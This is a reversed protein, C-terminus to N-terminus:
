GAGEITVEVYVIDPVFGRVCTLGTWRVFPQDFAKSLRICTTSFIELVSFPVTFLKGLRRSTFSLCFLSWGDDFIKGTVDISRGSGLTKDLSIVGASNGWGCRRGVDFIERVIFCIFFKFNLRFGCDSCRKTTMYFVFKAYWRSWFSTEFSLWKFARKAKRYLEGPIFM